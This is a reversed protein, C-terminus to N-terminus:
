LVRQAIRQFKRLTLSLPKMTLDIHLIINYDYETFLNSEDEAPLAELKEQKIEPKTQIEANLV